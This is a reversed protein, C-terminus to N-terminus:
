RLTNIGLSLLCSPLACGYCQFWAKARKIAHASAKIKVMIFVEAWCHPRLENRGSFM